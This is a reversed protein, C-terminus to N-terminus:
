CWIWAAPQEYVPKETFTWVSEQPMKVRHIKDTMRFLLSPPFYACRLYMAVAAPFFGAHLAKPMGMSVAELESLRDINEPKMVLDALANL